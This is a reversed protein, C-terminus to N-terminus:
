HTSPVLAERAQLVLPALPEWEAPSLQAGPTEPNNHGCSIASVYAQSVTRRGGNGAGAGGNGQAGGGLRTFHRGQKERFVVEVGYQLGVQMADKLAGADGHAAVHAAHADRMRALGDHTSFCYGNVIKFMDNNLNGLADSLGGITCIQQQATQPHDLDSGAFYNRM